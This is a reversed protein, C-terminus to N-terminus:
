RLRLTQPESGRLGMFVFHSNAEIKALPAIHLM